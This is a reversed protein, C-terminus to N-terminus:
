TTASNFLHPTMISTEWGDFCDIICVTARDRAGIM